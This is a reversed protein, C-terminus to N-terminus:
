LSEMARCGLGQCFRYFLMLNDFQTQTAEPLEISELEHPDVTLNYLEHHTAVPFTEPEAHTAVYLFDVPGGERRLGFFTPHEFRVLSPLFWHEVLFMKRHWSAGPDNLLPRLSVGDVDYPPSVGALDAITPALDSMLAIQSRRGPSTAGPTRVVLPIRISEEYPLDKGIVRHNGYSWGNDSTFVFLTNDIEGAAEIESVLSGVLDDVALMSALMAKFQDEIREAGPAGITLADGVCYPDSVVAFGPPPLPAPCSPKDRMDSENFSPSPPLGPLEGNSEDGDIWNAHRPAPRISVGFGASTDNGTVLSLPDLVEPHPALPAVVLFFPQPGGAARRVFDVALGALVDTQYDADASGYHVVSGNENVDYDFVRYTSVGVLGYWEDWGAPIYTRPDATGDPAVEGYGNMYKGVLGTHYGANRLWTAITSGERGPAGGAPMWGPLAMGSKLPHFSYNSFLGHNHAYQGRLFTARSPACSPTTVFANDFTVGANALEQLSPVFGGSRLTDLAGTSLDDVMVVVVNPAAGASRFPGVLCLAIGAFLAWRVTSNTAHVRAESANKVKGGLFRRSTTGTSPAIRDCIGTLSADQVECAM